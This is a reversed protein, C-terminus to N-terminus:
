RPNTGNIACNTIACSAWRPRLEPEYNQRPGRFDMDFWEANVLMDGTIM